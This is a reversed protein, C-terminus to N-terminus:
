MYLVFMQTVTFTKKLSNKSQDFFTEFVMNQKEFDV